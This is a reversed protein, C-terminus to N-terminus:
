AVEFKPATVVSYGTKNSLKEAIEQYSLFESNELEAIEQASHRLERKAEEVAM